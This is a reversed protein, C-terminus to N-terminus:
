NGHYRYSSSDRGATVTVVGGWWTCRMVASVASPVVLCLVIYLLPGEIYLAPIHLGYNGANYRSGASSRGVM